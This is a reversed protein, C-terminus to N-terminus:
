SIAISDPSFVVASFIDDVDKGDDSADDKGDDAASDKCDDNDVEGDDDDKGEM